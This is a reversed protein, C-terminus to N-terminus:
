RREICPEVFDVFHTPLILLHENNYNIEALVPFMRECYRNIFWASDRAPFAKEAEDIRITRKVRKTPPKVPLHCAKRYVLRFSSMGIPTKYATQYVWLADALRASWDKRHPKVIKELIRKIERNSVEAQGNTQPHYATAVKHIIGQKKLLSTM